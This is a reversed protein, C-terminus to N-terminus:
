LLSFGYPGKSSRWASISLLRRLKWQPAVRSPLCAGQLCGRRRSLRQFSLEWLVM